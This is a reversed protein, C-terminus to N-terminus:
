DSIFQTFFHRSFKKSTLIVMRVFMGDDNQRHSAMLDEKTTPVLSLQMWFQM